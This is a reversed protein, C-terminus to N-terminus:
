TARGSEENGARWTPEHELVIYAEFSEIQLASPIRSRRLFQLLMGANTMNVTRSFLVPFQLLPSLMLRDGHFSRTGRITYHHGRLRRPLMEPNGHKRLM